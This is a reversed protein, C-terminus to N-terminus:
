RFDNVSSFLLAVMNLAPLCTFKMGNLFNFESGYLEFCGEGTRVMIIGVWLSQTITPFDTIGDSFLEAPVSSFLLLM